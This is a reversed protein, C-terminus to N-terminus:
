TYAGVETLGCHPCVLNLLGNYELEVEGCRPCLMGARLRQGPQILCVANNTQSAQDTGKIQQSENIQNSM